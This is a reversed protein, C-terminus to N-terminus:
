QSRRPQNAAEVMSMDSTKNGALSRLRKKEGMEESELKEINQANHQHKKSGPKKESPPDLQM